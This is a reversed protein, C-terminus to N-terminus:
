WGPGSRRAPPTRSRTTIACTAHKWFLYFLSFFIGCVPLIVPAMVCYMIGLFAVMMTQAPVRHLPTNEPETWNRIM